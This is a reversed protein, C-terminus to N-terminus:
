TKVRIVGISKEMSSYVIFDPHDMTYILLDCIMIKFFHM